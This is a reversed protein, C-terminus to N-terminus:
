AAISWQLGFGPTAPGFLFHLVRRLGAPRTAKSSSHLLLPRMLLLEGALAVCDVRMGNAEDEPLSAAGLRGRDHSGAVVRLPGNDITCDDLHLRVALMDRLLTEPAHVYLQGEKESWGTLRPDGSRGAVPISLDQHLGVKWNRMPSKNFYTCQVAMADLPLFGGVSLGIRLENALTRCWDVGMLNRTGASSVGQAEVCGIVEVLRAKSLGSPRMLYGDRALADHVTAM